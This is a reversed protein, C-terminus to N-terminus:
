KKIIRERLNSSSYTHNRSNYIVKIQPLLDRSYNKKNKWDAGMFRIDIRNKNYLNLLLHYLDKETGYEIIEDIYKCAELKIRREEITEIPKSKDPRDVSPDAQLGVILYDCKERCEKFMLYHGAHTLDFAGCTFGINNKNGKKM